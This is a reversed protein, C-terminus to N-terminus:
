QLRPRPAQSRPSSNWRRKTAQNETRNQGWGLTPVMDVTEACWTVELIVRRKPWCKSSKHGEQCGPWESENGNFRKEDSKLSPDISIRFSADKLKQLKLHPGPHKSSITNAEAPQMTVHSGRDALWLRDSQVLGILVEASNRRHWGMNLLHM